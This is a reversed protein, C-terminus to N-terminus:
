SQQANTEHRLSEYVKDLFLRELFPRIYWWFRKFPNVFTSKIELVQHKGIFLCDGKEILEFDSVPRTYGVFHTKDETVKTDIIKIAGTKFLRHSEANSYGAELLASFVDLKHFGEASFLRSITLTGGGPRMTKTM